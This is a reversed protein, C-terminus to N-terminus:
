DQRAKEEKQIIELFDAELSKKPSEVIRGIEEDNKYFIFTPVLEINYSSIDMGPITKNEDLAYTELESLSALESAIKYFRPLQVRSDSCWTAMFIKIKLGEIKTELIEKILAKDTQYEEFEPSYWSGFRNNMLGSENIRGILIEEQSQTETTQNVQSFVSSSILIAIIIASLKM